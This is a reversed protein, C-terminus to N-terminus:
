SLFNFYIDGGFFFILLSAPIIHKRCPLLFFLPSWSLVLQCICLCKASLLQPGFVVLNWTELPCPAHTQRNRFTSCLRVFLLGELLIEPTLFWHVQYTPQRTSVSRFSSVQKREAALLSLSAYKKRPAKLLYFQNEKQFDCPLNHRHYTLVCQQIQTICFSALLM